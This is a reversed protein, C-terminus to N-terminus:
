IKIAKSLAPQSIYLNNAAKTFSTEKVVELFYIIEKINM